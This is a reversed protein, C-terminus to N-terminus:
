SNFLVRTSPPFDEPNFHYWNGGAGLSNEKIWDNTSQATRLSQWTSEDIDDYGIWSNDRMKIVLTQLKASYALKKARNRSKDSSQPATQVTFQPNMLEWEKAKEAQEAAEEQNSPLGLAKWYRDVSAQRLGDRDGFLEEASPLKPRKAM